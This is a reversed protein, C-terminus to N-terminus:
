TFQTKLALLTLAARAAEGGKDKQKRDARVHAQDDNEVTLIG